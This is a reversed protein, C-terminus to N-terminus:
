AAQTSAYEEYNILGDGDVDAELVMLKAVKSLEVASIFGNGDRDFGGFAELLERDSHKEKM